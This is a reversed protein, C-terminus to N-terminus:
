IWRKTNGPTILHFNRKEEDVFTVIDPSCKRIYALKRDPNGGHILALESLNPSPPEFTSRMKWVYVHFHLHKCICINM